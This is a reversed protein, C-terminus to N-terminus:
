QQRPQVRPIPIRHKQRYEILQKTTVDNPYCLPKDIVSADLYLSKGACLRGQKDKDYPCPCDQGAFKIISDQMMLDIIEKNNMEKIAISTGSIGVLLCLAILESTKKM